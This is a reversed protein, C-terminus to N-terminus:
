KKKLLIRKEIYINHKQINICKYIVYKPDLSVNLIEQFARKVKNINDTGGATPDTINKIGMKM